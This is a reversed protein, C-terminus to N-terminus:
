NGKEARAAVVREISTKEDLGTSLQIARVSLQEHRELSDLSVPGSRNQSKPDPMTRAQSMGVPVIKNSYVREARVADASFLELADAQDEDGEAIHGLATLQVIRAKIKSKAAEEESQKDAGAKEVAATLEVIRANARKLEVALFKHEASFQKAGESSKNLIAAFADSNDMIAKCVAQPDMGTADALATVVAAADAAGDNAMEKPKDKDEAVEEAEKPKEEVPEDKKQEESDPVDAERTLQIPHLGDIFPDDTLAAQIIEPGIKKSTVRDVSSPEIVASCTQYEGNRIMEAAKPTWRVFGWLERGDARTELGEIHGAAPIPGTGKYRLTQHEYDFKLPTRRKGFNKVMNAFADATFEIPGTPHGQWTGVRLLNVWCANDDGVSERSLSALSAYRMAGGAEFAVM